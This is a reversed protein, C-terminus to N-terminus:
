KKKREKQRTDNADNKKNKKGKTRDSIHTLKIYIYLTYDYNNDVRYVYRIQVHQQSERVILLFLCLLM